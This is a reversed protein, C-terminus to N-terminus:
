AAKKKQDAEFFDEIEQIEIKSLKFFEYIAFNLEKFTAANNTKILKKVISEIKIKSKEDFDPFPLEKCNKILVKQFIKKNIDLYKYAHYFCYLNSNILGLALYISPGKKRELLNFGIQTNYLEKDTYGAIIRSREGVIQRVVIRSETFFRKERPAALWDGYSIFSNQPDDITFAKINKGSLLPKFSKDKKTEAHFVQNEIQEKTHGQYKDYPTLGLCFEFSDCFTKTAKSEVKDFIGKTDKSAYLNFLVNEDKKWESLLFKTPPKRNEDIFSIKENSDYVITEVEKNTSGKELLVICSEATVGEFTGDPMKMIVQPTAKELILKRLDLYSSQTLLSSPVIFGLRGNKSLLEIGKEIFLAYVNIRNSATSFKEFLIKTTESPLGKLDKWPPNGIIFDFGQPRNKKWSFSVLSDGHFLQDDLRELKKGPVASSLWLSMKALKVARPNLDVGFICKDLIRRYTESADETLDDNHEESWKKRYCIYLYDLAGALFHGSGMAPDCIKFNLIDECSAKEILPGLTKQVIYNVVYDPTYFSGTMKRDMNDPSFFLDGKKVIHHDVLKLKKVHDSKINASLWQGGKFIMDKDARELRYELLSEYISGLQRPTFYSYPIQQFKRDPSTSEIFNLNFLINIMDRNSIKHKKAFSWEEKTFISEKFGSIEFGFNKSEQTGDHIVEYLNIFRQFIDHGEYTFKKGGFADGFRFDRLYDEWSKDPDFRMETLYEIVEHLSVKLYNISQVPLIRRVECSKTFLINFLHSEAVNRITELDYKTGSQEASNKLANCTIGMTIIFRKKLDEEISSAYKKSYELVEYLFPAAKGPGSHVISSKAFFYYFYKAYNRFRQENNEKDIELALEKLNGLDFEFSRRDIGQSLESHFLKWTKGDTLIGFDLGFIEMYKMTQLEPGLSSASDDIEKNKLKDGKSALRDWYKAELVIKAGTKKDKAERIKSSPDKEKQTYVKHQPQDFYVLDPRYVHKRGNDEITFSTNDIFSNQHGESNDEWGLLKMVPVIWNRVTDAERWSLFSEHELDNCIDIFGQYFNAFDGIEDQEWLKKYDRPLDNKLYVDSFLSSRWFPNLDRKTDHLLETQNLDLAAKKAATTNRM